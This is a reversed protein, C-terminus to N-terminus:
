DKGLQKKYYELCPDCVGEKVVWKPHAKQIAEIIHGDTHQIFVMLDREIEHSCIPCTYANM